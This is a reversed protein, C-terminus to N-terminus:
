VSRHKTLDTPRLPRVSGRSFPMEVMGRPMAKPEKTDTRERAAHRSEVGGESLNMISDELCEFCIQPTPVESEFYLAQGCHNCKCETM